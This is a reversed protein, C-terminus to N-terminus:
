ASRGQYDWTFQKNVYWPLVGVMGLFVMAASLFGLGTLVLESANGSAFLVGTTVGVILLLSFYVKVLM